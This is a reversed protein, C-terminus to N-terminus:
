RSQVTSLIITFALGRETQVYNWIIIVAYFESCHNRGFSYSLLTSIYLVQRGVFNNYQHKYDELM